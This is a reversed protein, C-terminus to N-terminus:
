HHYYQHSYPIPASHMDYASVHEFAPAPVSIPSHEYTVTAVYGNADDATYKVTQIRGDSLIVRYTGTIVEGNSSEMRGFHVNAKADEM